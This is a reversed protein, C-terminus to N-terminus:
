PKVEQPAPAVGFSKELAAIQAMLSTLQAQLDAQAQPETLPNSASVTHYIKYAAQASNYAAIAQNVQAKFQPFQAEEVKVQQVAAQATILVDYAYGDFANIQNPHPPPTPTVNASGVCGALALALLIPFLILKRNQIKM